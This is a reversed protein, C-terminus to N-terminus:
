LATTEQGNRSGAAVFARVDIDDSLFVVGGDGRVFNAGSTHFSAFFLNNFTLGGPAGDPKPPRDGYQATNHADYFGVVTLEANIPYRDDINKTSSSCSSRPTYGVAPLPTAAQGRPPSQQHYVGAMWVRLQYWREGAMLTNSVGDTVQGMNVNSGPFLLGDTNIGACLGTTPGVCDDPGGQVCSPQSGFKLRYASQYSGAVGAYSSSHSGEGRFKDKIELSDDSPCLYLPLELDNLEAMQYAGPDQGNSEMSKVRAAVESSLGGQEIYPLIHVHWSFSNVDTKTLVSAGPPLVQRASEYNLCALGINKLNNQCSSRRAAERAAQIAPLLLAVLVGIIA